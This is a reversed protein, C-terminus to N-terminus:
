GFRSRLWSPYSRSKGADLISTELGELLREVCSLFEAPMSADDPFAEFAISCHQKGAVELDTLEFGLGRELMVGPVTEAPENCADIRFMRQARTKHVSLRVLGDMEHVDFLSQYAPPLEEYGWKIWRQVCGEHRGSFREPGLEEILGKIQLTGERWKIGMDDCDPLLLYIDPEEGLRGYWEPEGVDKDQKFPAFEMFWRRLTEHKESSGQLFWRVECSTFPSAVGLVSM